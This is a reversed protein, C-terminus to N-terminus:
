RAGKTALVAPLTRMVIFFDLWLSWNRIYFTDIAEQQQLDAGSRDSVQWLGTLGPRVACRLAQFQPSFKAVHYAPFPRPGVLSIDGRVVNWLQPLEDISTRRIFNGIVPLIRPDRSLKVYTDWERRAEPDNRLLEELREDADTYMSRLKLIGVTEGRWGIRPQTYFAPGPSLRKIILAMLLILPAAILLAPVAIALDVVRKGCQGTRARAPNAFDVGASRGLARTQMSVLPVEGSEPVLVIRSFPLASIDLGRLAPSALVVAIEAMGGLTSLDAISGLRPVAVGMGREPADGFYGIPRLGIEPKALLDSAVRAVDGGAGIMVVDAGWAARAVLLRVAVAELLMSLPLFALSTFGMLLLADPTVPGALAFIGLGPWPLWLSVLVRRRFRELPDLGAADYLALAAGAVLATLAMTVALTAMTEAPVEAGFLRLALYGLLLAAGFALMDAVGLAVLRLARRLGRGAKPVPALGVFQTATIESM